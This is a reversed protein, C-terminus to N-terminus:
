DIILQSSALYSAFFGFVATQAFTLGMTFRNRLVARTAEMLPGANLPLRRDRPLTGPLRMSWLGVGIGFIAISWFILQWTTLALILSGLTPAVVPVVIFVAMIYSMVKAMTQGEYADRVIGHAVVRPGAAGIGGLLRFLFLAELSPAFAAGISSAIYVALGAYLVRKRGLADSLPGWIPQGIALGFLFFTVIPAMANSDAALDFHSRMDGFAPLMMDIALAVLAMIMSVLMTFELRGLRSEITDRAANM